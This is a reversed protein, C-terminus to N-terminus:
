QVTVKITKSWDKGYSQHLGDAFQLTLSYQGPKLELTTETQGKGFHIHKEDAPVVSGKDVSAGDIILHHHGTGEKIAGAPEVKMGKVVFEVKLPSKVIAGDKLNGFEVGASVCSAIGLTAVSLSLIKYISTWKM